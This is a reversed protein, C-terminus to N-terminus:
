RIVKEDEKNGDEPEDEEFEENEDFGGAVFEEIKEERRTKLEHIEARLRAIEAEGNRIQLDIRAALKDKLRTRIADREPDDNELTHWTHVLADIQYDLRIEALFKKAHEAGEEEALGRYEWIIESFHEVMEEYDDIPENDKTYRLLVLAEPIREEFFSLVEATEPKDEPAAGATSLIGQHALLALLPIAVRKMTKKKKEKVEESM